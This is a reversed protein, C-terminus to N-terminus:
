CLRRSLRRCWVCRALQRRRLRWRRSSVALVARPRTGVVCAAVM